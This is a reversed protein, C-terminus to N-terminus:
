FDKRVVVGGSSTKWDNFLQRMAYHCAQDYISFGHVSQFAMNFLEDTDLNKYAALYPAEIAKIKERARDLEIDNVYTVLYGQRIENCYKVVSYVRYANVLDTLEPRKFRDVAECGALL